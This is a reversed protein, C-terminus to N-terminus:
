KAQLGIQIITDKDLSTGDVDEGSKPNTVPYPLLCPNQVLDVRDWGLGQQHYGYEKLNLAEALSQFSVNVFDSKKFFVPKTDSLFWVGRTYGDRYVAEFDPNEAKFAIFSSEDLTEIVSIDNEESVRPPSVGEEIYSSLIFSAQTLALVADEDNAFDRDLSSMAVKLTDSLDDPLHAHAMMGWRAILDIGYVVTLTSYNLALTPNIFLTSVLLTEIDKVDKIILTSPFSEGLLMVEFFNKATDFSNENSGGTKFCVADQVHGTINPLLKIFREAM